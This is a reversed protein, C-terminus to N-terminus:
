RFWHQGINGLVMHCCLGCDTLENARPLNSHFTLYALILHNIAGNDRIFNGESSHRQTKSIILWCQNLYHSPAMLCCAMVQALTSGFRLLLRADSPWLSNLTLSHEMGVRHLNCGTRYLIATYDIYGHNGNQQTTSPQCSSSAVYVAWMSGYLCACWCSGQHHLVCPSAM